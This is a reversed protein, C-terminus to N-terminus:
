RRLSLRLRLVEWAMRLPDMLRIKSGAQPTWHIPLKGVELGLKRAWYLVEVDFIWRKSQVKEFIRVAADRRFGKFGCQTDATRLGFLANVFRNFGWGLLQRAPSSGKVFGGRSRDAIVVPYSELMSSMMTLYAPSIAGDADMFVIHDYRASLVGLKVAHGKGQNPKYSIVRVRDSEGCIRNLVRVSDDTSGDDIFLIESDQWAAGTLKLVEEVFASM